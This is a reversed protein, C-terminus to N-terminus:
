FEKNEGILGPPRRRTEEAMPNPADLSIDIVSSVAIIIKVVWEDKALERRGLSCYYFFIYRSMVLKQTMERSVVSQYPRRQLKCRQM